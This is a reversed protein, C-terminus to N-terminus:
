IEIGEQRSLLEDRGLRVGSNNLRKQSRNSTNGKELATFCFRTQMEQQQVGKLNQARKRFSCYFQGGRILFVDLICVSVTAPENLVLRERERKRMERQTVRAPVSEVRYYEDYIFNDIEELPKGYLKRPFPEFKNPLVSGDAVSVKRRPQFGYERVLQVTKNELRELSEKTFPKVQQKGSKNNNISKLSSQPTRAGFSEGGASPQNPTISGRREIEDEENPNLTAVTSPAPPTTVPDEASVPPSVPASSTVTSETTVVTLAAASPKPLVRPPPPPPTRSRSTEQQPPTLSMPRRGSDM